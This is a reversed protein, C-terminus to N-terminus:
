VIFTMLKYTQSFFHCYRGDSLSVFSQQLLEIFFIESSFKWRVLESSQDQNPYPKGHHILIIQILPAKSNRRVNVLITISIYTVQIM